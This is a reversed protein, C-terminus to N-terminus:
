SDGGILTVWTDFCKRKEPKPSNRMLWKYKELGNTDDATYGRLYEITNAVVAKIDFNRLAVQIASFYGGMCINNQGTSMHCHQWHKAPAAINRARTSGTALNVEIEWKGTYLSPLKEGKVITEDSYLDKTVLLMICNPMPKTSEVNALTMLGNLTDTFLKSGNEKVLRLSLLPIIANQNAQMLETECRKINALARAAVGEMNETMFDVWEKEPTPEEFVFDGVPSQFVEMAREANFEGEMFVINEAVHASPRHPDTFVSVYKKNLSGHFSDGQILGHFVWRQTKRTQCREVRDLLRVPNTVDSLLLPFGKGMHVVWLPTKGFFEHAEKSHNSNLRHKRSLKMRAPSAEEESDEEGDYQNERARGASTTYWEVLTPTPACLERGPTLFPPLRNDASATPRNNGERIDHVAKAREQDGFKLSGIKTM